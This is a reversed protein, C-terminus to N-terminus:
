RPIEHSPAEERQRAVELLGEAPLTRTPLAQLSDLRGPPAGPVATTASHVGTGLMSVPATSLLWNM